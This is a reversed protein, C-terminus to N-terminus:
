SKFITFWWSFDHFNVTLYILMNVVYLFKLGFHCSKIRPDLVSNWCKLVYLFWLILMLVDCVDVLILSFWPFTWYSISSIFVGVQKPTFLIISVIIITTAILHLHHHHHISSSSPAGKKIFLSSCSVCFECTYWENDKKRKINLFFCLFDRLERGKLSKGGAEGLSLLFHTRVQGSWCALVWVYLWRVGM